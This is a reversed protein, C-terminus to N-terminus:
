LLLQQSAVTCTMISTFLFGGACKSLDAPPAPPPGAWVQLQHTLVAPQTNPYARSGSRLLLVCSQRSVLLFLLVLTCQDIRLSSAPMTADCHRQSYRVSLKKHGYAPCLSTLHLSHIDSASLKFRFHAFQMFPMMFQQLLLSFLHIFLYFSACQRNQWSLRTNDRHM